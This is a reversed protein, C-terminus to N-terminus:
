QRYSYFLGVKGRRDIQKKCMKFKSDENGEEIIRNVMELPSKEDNNWKIQYDRYLFDDNFQFRPDNAINGRKGYYGSAWHNNMIQNSNLDKLSIFTEDSCCKNHARVKRHSHQKKCKAFGRNQPSHYDVSNSGAFVNRYTKGM